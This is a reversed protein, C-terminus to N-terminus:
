STINLAEVSPPAVNVSLILRLLLVSASDCSTCIAASLSLTITVHHSRFAVLLSGTTVILVSLPVVNAGM